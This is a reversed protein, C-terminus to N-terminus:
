IGYKEHMMLTYLVVQARHSVSGTMKGTKLEFPVIYLNEDIQVQLTADIKGKLGFMPCWINEEVDLVQKIYMSQSPNFAKQRWQVMKEVSEWLSEYVAEERKGICGLKDIYLRITSRLKIKAQLLSLPEKMMEEFMQHLITGSLLVWKEASVDQVFGTIAARRLCTFSDALQTCSILCDPLLVLFGSEDSVTLIGDQISGIVNVTQQAHVPTYAWEDTLIILFQKTHLIKEFMGKSKSCAQTEVNEVVVRYFRKHENEIEAYLDDFEDLISEEIKSKQTDEIDQLFGELVDPDDLLQDLENLEALEKDIKSHIHRYKKKTPSKLPSSDSKIM